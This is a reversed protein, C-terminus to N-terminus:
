LFILFIIAIEADLVHKGRSKGTSLFTLAALFSSVVIKFPHTERTREYTHQAYISHLANFESRGAPLSWKM